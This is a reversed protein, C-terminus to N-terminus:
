DSGGRGFVLALAAGGAALVGVPLDTTSFFGGGAGGGTGSTEEEAENQLDIQAQRIKDLEEEIKTVDATQNTRSEPRFNDLEDGSENTVKDITFSTELQIFDGSETGDSDTHNYSIYLPKGWGTPDYTTDKRFDVPNGSGDTPQYDTFMDALVTSDGESYHITMTVGTNKSTPIGLMAAQAGRFQYGDYNQALETAATIPDVLEETPIDGPAYAAYVDAVFGSLNSNVNDRTTQVQTFTDHPRNLPYFGGGNNPQYALGKGDAPKASDYTEIPPFKTQLETQNQNEHYEHVTLDYTSGDLFTITQPSLETRSAAAYWGASIKEWVKIISGGSTNSHNELQDFHHAIQNTQSQYHTVINKQITSFYGDIAETMATNAEAETAGNNMAEIIAAKGKALAVNESNTVNNEISTMVREDASKMETFGAMVETKLADAGTYGSYDREDGLYKDAATEMLYGVGAAGAIAAGAIIPAIAEANGVPGRDLAASGGGVVAAGTAAGAGKVFQRRSIGSM